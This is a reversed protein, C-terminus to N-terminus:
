EKLWPHQLLEAATSRKEPDLYLMCSLFHVFTQDVDHLLHALSTEKEELRYYYEKGGAPEGDAGVGGGEEQAEWEDVQIEYVEKNNKGFYYRATKGEEIMKDPFKGMISIM